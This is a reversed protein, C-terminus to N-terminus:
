RHSPDHFDQTQGRLAEAIPLNALTDADARGGHLTVPRAGLARSQTPWYWVLQVRGSQFRPQERAALTHISRTAGLRIPSFYM